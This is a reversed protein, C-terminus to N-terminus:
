SPAGEKPATAGLSTSRTSSATRARTSALRRFSAGASSATGTSSLSPGNASEEQRSLRRLPARGRREARFGRAYPFAAQSRRAFAAHCWLRMSRSSAVLQAGAKHFEPVMENYLAMQDGCVPSWDAPYFALIVPSGACIMSRSLRTLTASLSFAPAATGAPLAATAIIDSM